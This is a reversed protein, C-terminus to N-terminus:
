GDRDGRQEPTLAADPWREFAERMAPRHIGRSFAAAGGGFRISGFAWEAGKVFAARRAADLTETGAGDDEGPRVAAASLVVALVRRIDGVTAGSEQEGRETGGWPQDTETTQMLPTDDPLRGLARDLRAEAEFDRGEGHYKCWGCPEDELCACFFKPTKPM